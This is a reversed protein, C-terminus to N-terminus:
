GGRALWDEVLRQQALAVERLGDVIAREVKSGLLPVKVKLEGKVTRATAGAEDAVLAAYRGELLDGYHDPRILYRSRGSALDHEGVEVWTLQDPDVFRRAASPLDAEFRYRVEQRIRDGTHTTTLVTAEGLRPLDVMSALLDPDVLAAAVALAPAAFRQDLTFDV